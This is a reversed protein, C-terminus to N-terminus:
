AVHISSSAFSLQSSKPREEVNSTELFAKLISVLLRASLKVGLRFGVLRELEWLRVESRDRWIIWKLFHIHSGLETSILLQCFWLINESLKQLNWLGQLLPAREHSKWLTWFSRLLVGCDSTAEAAELFCPFNEFPKWLSWVSCLFTTHEWM